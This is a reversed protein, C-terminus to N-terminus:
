YTGVTVTITGLFNKLEKVGMPTKISLSTSIGTQGLTHSAAYSISKLLKQDTIMVYEHIDGTGSIHARINESVSKSGPELELLNTSIRAEISTKADEIFGGTQMFKEMGAKGIRQELSNGASNNSTTLIVQPNSIKFQGSISQAQVIHISALLGIAIIIIRIGM